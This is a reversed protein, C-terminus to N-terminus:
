GLEPYRVGTAEVSAEWLQAALARDRAAASAATATPAGRLGGPGRPGFFRTGTRDPREGADRRLPRQPDGGLAAKATAAFLIPQAGQDASQAFLRTGQRLVPGAARRSAGQTRAVLESRAFGPHAALSHLRGGARRDLEFAFLLNALKSRAYGLWNSGRPLIKFDTLETRLAVRHVLSSVTVVRPAEATLLLPLLQGTLAFHGLHNTGIQLEFGDASQGPPPAMVGANNVLVDLEGARDAIEAAAEEVSELSALDMHVFEVRAGPHARRIAAAAAQARAANRCGLLTRAGAGALQRAVALGLGSSAGTVLVTRGSLNDVV